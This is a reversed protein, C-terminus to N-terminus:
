RYVFEVTRLPTCISCLLGIHEAAVLAGSRMWLTDRSLSQWTVFVVDGRRRYTGLEALAFENIFGADDPGRYSAHREVRRRNLVTDSVLVLSDSLLTHVTRSGDPYSQDITAQPLQRAEVTRLVYVRKLPDSGSTDGCAAALLLLASALLRPVRANEM